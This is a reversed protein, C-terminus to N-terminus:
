ENSNRELYELANLLSTSSDKLLGLAKNCSDCLLGRIKGTVHNHDVDLRRRLSSLHIKCINCLGDQDQVMQQYQEPTLNFNQRLKRAWQKYSGGNRYHRLSIEKARDPNAQRWARSYANRDTKM